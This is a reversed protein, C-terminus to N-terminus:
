CSGDRSMPHLMGDDHWPMPQSPLFDQTARTPHSGHAQPHRKPDLAACRGDFDLLNLNAYLRYSHSRVNGVRVAPAPQQARAVPPPLPISYQASQVQSALRGFDSALHELTIWSTHTDLRFRVARILGTMDGQAHAHTSTKDNSRIILAAEGSSEHIDLLPNISDANALSLKVRSVNTHFEARSLIIDERPPLHFVGGHMGSAFALVQSGGSSLRAELERILVEFQFVFPMRTLLRDMVVNWDLKTTQTQPEPPRWQHIRVLATLLASYWRGQKGSPLDWSGILKAIGVEIHLVPPTPGIPVAMQCRGKLTHLEAAPVVHLLNNEQTPSFAPLIRVNIHDVRWTGILDIIHPHHRQKLITRNLKWAWSLIGQKELVACPDIAATIPGVDVAVLAGEQEGSKHPDPSAITNLLRLGGFDIRSQHVLHLWAPPREPEASHPVGAGRASAFPQAAPEAAGVSARIRRREAARKAHDLIFLISNVDAVVPPMTVDVGITHLAAQLPGLTFIFHDEWGGCALDSSTENPEPHDLGFSLIPEDPNDPNDQVSAFRITTYLRTKFSLQGKGPSYLVSRTELSEPCSTNDGDDGWASCTQKWTPLAGFSWLKDAQATPFAQRPFPVSSPVAYVQVDDWSVRAAMKMRLTVSTANKLSEVLEYPVPPEADAGLSVRRQRRTEESGQVSGSRAAWGVHISRVRVCITDPVLEEDPADANRSPTWSISLRSVELDILSALLPLILTQVLVAVVFRAFSIAAAFFRAMGCSGAAHGFRTLSRVHFLSARRMIGPSAAKSRPPRAEAPLTVFSLQPDSVIVSILAYSDPRLGNWRLSIHAISASVDRSSHASHGALRLLSRKALAWVLLYVALAALLTGAAFAWSPLHLPEM